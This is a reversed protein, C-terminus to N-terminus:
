GGGGASAAVRAGTGILNSLFEMGERRRREEAETTAGLRGLTAEALAPYLGARRTGTSGIRDSETRYGAEGIGRYGELKGVDAGYMGSLKNAEIEGQRRSVDAMAQSEAVSLDGRRGYLGSLGQQQAVSAATREGLLGARAQRARDQAAMIDRQAQMGLDAGQTAFQGMIAARAAPGGVRARQMAKAQALANQQRQRELLGGPATIRRAAAEEDATLAERAAIGEQQLRLIDALATEQRGLEERAGTYGSLRLGREAELALSQAEAVKEALARKEKAISDLLGRQQAIYQELAVRQQEDATSMQREAMELARKAEDEAQNLRQKQVDQVATPSQGIGIVNAAGQSTTALAPNQIFGLPNNRVAQGALSEEGFAWNGFRGIASDKGFAWNGFDGLGKGIDFM